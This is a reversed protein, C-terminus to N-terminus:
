ISQTNNPTSSPGTTAFADSQIQAAADELLQRKKVYFKEESEGRLKFEEKLRDDAAVKEEELIAIRKMVDAMPGLDDEKDVIQENWNGSLQAQFRNQDAAADDAMASMDYGEAALSADDSSASGQLREMRERRLEAADDEVPEEGLEDNAASLSEMMRKESERLEEDMDIDPINQTVESSVNEMNFPQEEEVTEEVKMKKVRRRRIKKRPKGTVTVDPTAALTAALPEPTEPRPSQVNVEFAETDTDVNISRRFNFADNLEKQAKRIEDLQFQDEMSDEFTATAQASFSQVNQVFKGIEKTVKYLDSPGLVYYGVLLVTFIEAPGVGLIGGDSGMFMNLETDKKRLPVDMPSVVVQSSGLSNTSVPLASPVFAETCQAAMVALAVIGSAWRLQQNAVM